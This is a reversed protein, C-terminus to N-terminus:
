LYRLMSKSLHPLLKLEIRFTSWYIIKLLVLSLKEEPARTFSNCVFVSWERQCRSLFQCEVYKKENHVNNGEAVEQITKIFSKSIINFTQTIWLKYDESQDHDSVQKCLTLRASCSFYLSILLLLIVLMDVTNFVNYCYIFFENVLEPIHDEQLKRPLKKFFM